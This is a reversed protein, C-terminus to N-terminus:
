EKVGKLSQLKELGKVTIRWVKAPRGHTTRKTNGTDEVYGMLVLERRRMAANSRGTSTLVELEEDILPQQGLAQLPKTHQLCWATRNRVRVRKQTEPAKVLKLEPPSHKKVAM